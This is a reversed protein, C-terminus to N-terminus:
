FFELPQKSIELLRMASTYANINDQGIDDGWIVLFDPKKDAAYVNFRVGYLAAGATLLSLGHHLIRNVPKMNNQQWGINQKAPSTALRGSPWGAHKL